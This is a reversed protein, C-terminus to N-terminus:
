QAPRGDLRRSMITRPEVEYGLTEYFARVAENEPRIMLMVKPVGLAALWAEAHAVLIGGLKRKRLRPEVAVYYMWGRHGDHGAMVSGALREGVLGVFLRANPSALCFDIDRDPPNWPRTLGCAHWLAVVAVRDEERFPRIATFHSPGGSGPQDIM